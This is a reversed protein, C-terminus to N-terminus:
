SLYAENNFFLDIGYKRVEYIEETTLPRVTTQGDQFDVLFIGLDDIAETLFQEIILPSHTVIFFQNTASTAVENTFESIYTPHVNAEPEEFLLVSNKNSVVATKYFIIRQITDSISSYPLQFLDTESDDGQFRLSQTVRDFVVQPGYQRFWKGYEKRLDVMGELVYLLNAGLPPTPFSSAIRRFDINKRFYYPKIYYLPENFETGVSGFIDTLETRKSNADFTFLIMRAYNRKDDKDSTKYTLDFKEDLEIRVFLDGTIDNFSVECDGETNERILKLRITCLENKSTQYFLQLPFELRVFDTLEQKRDDRLYPLGFLSLAELINSKGVNPRGIFLNIRKFGGVKLHRISKFNKIEIHDIFHDM